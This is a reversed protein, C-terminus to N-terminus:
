ALVTATASSGVPAWRFDEECADRFAVLVRLAFEVYNHAVKPIRNLMAQLEPNIITVTGITSLQLFRDQEDARIYSNSLFECAASDGPDMPEYDVCFRVVPGSPPLLQKGDSNIWYESVFCSVRRSDVIYEPIADVKDLRGFRPSPECAM